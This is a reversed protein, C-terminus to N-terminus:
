DKTAIDIAEGAVDAMFRIQDPTIVYPPMFYIVNGLPRLLVGRTLGHRYVRLGRREQWPYPERDTKNKVLEIALIMGTQRIEAVHPHDEFAAASEAMADALLRNAALTNEKEFLDLTALAARCALANGTYSHSHLFAKLKTYEDYFAAYVAETTLVCSLPLYGGTLGKSLCMFDPRIGAQECAFLTGTRGFGVAIEDAILHVGHRDCAERLLKLYVPDYMRMGGACQVLPEVIVACAEAAHAALTREMEAFKRRSYDAWTEGPERHYCDPSEVTIPKLLLPEYTEKYLAVDGVALAGLTEGHYSNSLAIFRTKEPKGANRWFHFSMKLAVEVASSGNDAYFCRSLGKPALGILREALRVAPEHTFGALIVHELTELQDKLAAKIYPHGHGFLNVWWSSIADLYRNGAFDELWVGQGRKIPIPPLAEHDKMQTCPHWLVALDRSSWDHNNM